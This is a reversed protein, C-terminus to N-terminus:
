RLGSPIYSSMSLLLSLGLWLGGVVIAASAFMLLLGLLHMPDIRPYRGHM